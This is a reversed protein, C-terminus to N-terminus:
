ALEGTEYYGWIECMTRIRSDVTSLARYEQTIMCDVSFVQGAELRVNVDEPAETTGIMGYRPTLYALPTGNRKMTIILDQQAVLQNPRFRVSQLVAAGHLPATFSALTYDVDKAEIYVGLDDNYIVIFFPNRGIRRRVRGPRGQPPLREHDQGGPILYDAQRKKLVM